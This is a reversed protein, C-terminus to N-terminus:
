LRIIRPYRITGASARSDLRDQYGSIIDAQTCPQGHKPSDPLWQSGEDPAAIPFGTDTWCDAIELHIEYIAYHTYGANRLNAIKKATLAM